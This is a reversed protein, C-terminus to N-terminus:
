RIPYDQRRILCCSGRIASGARDTVPGPSALGRAAPCPYNRSGTGPRMHNQPKAEPPIGGGLVGGLM